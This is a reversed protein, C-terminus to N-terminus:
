VTGCKFCQKSSLIKLITNTIMWAGFIILIGWVLDTLIKKGRGLNAPKAGATLIFFGAIVVFLVGVPPVINFMLFNKVNDVLEFFDCATCLDGLGSGCPVLGSDQANATFYPVFLIAIFILVVFIKTYTIKM